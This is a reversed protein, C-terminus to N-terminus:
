KDLITASLRGIGDRVPGLREARVGAVQRLMDILERKEALSCRTEVPGKLQHLRSTLDGKLDAARRALGMCREAAKADAGMRKILLAEILREQDATVACDEGAVAYMMAAAAIRPDAEGNVAAILPASRTTVHRYILFLAAAGILALVIPM